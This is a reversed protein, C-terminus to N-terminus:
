PVRKRATFGACGCLPFCGGPVRVHDHEDYCHGCRACEADAAPVARALDAVEALAAEVNLPFGQEDYRATM